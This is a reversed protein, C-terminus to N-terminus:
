SPGACFHKDTDACTRDADCLGAVGSTTEPKEVGICNIIFEHEHGDNCSIKRVTGGMQLQTFDAATLQVWHSHMSKGKTDYAKPTAAMVDAVPIDLQHGHDSTILVKLKTACDPTVVPAGGSGGAGSSTGGLGGTNGGAGGTAGGAGSTGGGNAAASGAAGGNPSGATNLAGSAGPMGAGGATPTGASGPAGAAAPVAGGDDSCGFFLASSAAALGFTLFQQRDLRKFSDM